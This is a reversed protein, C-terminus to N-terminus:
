EFFAMELTKCILNGDNGFLYYEIGYLGESIGELNLEAIKSVKVNGEAQIGTFGTERVSCNNRDRIIVKLTAGCIEKGFNSVSVALKQMRNVTAYEHLASVLVPKYYQAAAFYLLKCNGKADVAGWYATGLDFMTVFSFSTYVDSRQRLGDIIQTDILAQFAQTERWDDRTINKGYLGADVLDKKYSWFPNSKWRFNAYIDAVKEPDPIGDTGFETINVPKQMDLAQIGDKAFDGM